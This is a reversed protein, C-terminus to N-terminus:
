QMKSAPGIGYQSIPTWTGTVPNVAMWGHERVGETCFVFPDNSRGVPLYAGQSAGSSQASAEFALLALAVAIGQKMIARHRGHAM